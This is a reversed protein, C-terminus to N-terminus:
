ECFVASGDVMTAVFEGDENFLSKGKLTYEVGDIVTLEGEDDENEYTEDDLNASSWSWIPSVAESPTDHLVPLVTLAEAKKAKPAAKKVKPEEEDDSTEKKAKAKTAKPKPAVKPEEEDDSTEAKKAKPKAAKKVKPEEDDSTEAKKAKSKTAKKVKPEEDDSTEAKKAKKAVKKVPAEDDSAKKTAKPKTVQKTKESSSTSADSDDDSESVEMKSKPRGPKHKVVRKSNVVLYSAPIEFDFGAEQIAANVEEITKEHKQLWTGYTIERKDMPDTYNGADGRDELVGFKAGHKECSVCLISGGETCKGGCPVYLGDSKKLAQCGTYHIISPLYPLQVKIKKAIAWPIRNTAKTAGGTIKTWMMRELTAADPMESLEAVVESYITMFQALSSRAFAELAFSM